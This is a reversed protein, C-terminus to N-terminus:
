KKFERFRFQISQLGKKSPSLKSHLKSPAAMDQNQGEGFHIDESGTPPAMLDSGIGVVLFM